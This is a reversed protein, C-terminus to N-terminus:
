ISIQSTTNRFYIIDNLHKVFKLKSVDNLYELQEQNLILLKLKEYDSYYNLQFELSLRTDVIKSALQFFDRKTQGIIVEKICFLDL